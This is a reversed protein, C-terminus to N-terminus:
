SSGPQRGAQHFSPSRTRDPGLSRNTTMTVMLSCAAQQKRPDSLHAGSAKRAVARAIPHTTQPGWASSGASGGSGALLLQLWGDGYRKQQEQGDICICVVCVLICRGYGDTWGCAGAYTLNAISCGIALAHSVPGGVRRDYSQQHAGSTQSEGTRGVVICQGGIGIHHKREDNESMWREVSPSLGQISQSILARRTWMRRRPPSYGCRPKSIVSRGIGYRSRAYCAVSLHYSVHVSSTQECPSTTGGRDSPVAASMYLTTERQHLPSRRMGFWGCDEEDVGQGAIFWWNRRMGKRLMFVERMAQARPTPATRAAGVLRAMVSVNTGAAEKLQVYSVIVLSM